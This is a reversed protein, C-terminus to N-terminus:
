YFHQEELGLGASGFFKFFLFGKFFEVFGCYSSIVIVLQFASTLHKVEVLQDIFVVILLVVVIQVLLVGRLLLRQHGDLLVLVQLVRLAWWLGLLHLPFHM